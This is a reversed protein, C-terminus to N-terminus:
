PQPAKWLDSDHLAGEGPAAEKGQLMEHLLPLLVKGTELKPRPGKEIEDQDHTRTITRIIRFIGHEILAVIKWLISPALACLMAMEPGKAPDSLRYLRLFKM